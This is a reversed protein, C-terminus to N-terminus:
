LSDLDGEVEASGSTYGLLSLVQGTVRKGSPHDCLKIGSVSTNNYVVGFAVNRTVSAQQLNPYQTAINKILNSM